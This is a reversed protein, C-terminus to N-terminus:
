RGETRVIHIAPNFQCVPPTEAEIATMMTEASELLIKTLQAEIYGEWMPLKQSAWRAFEPNHLASDKAIAAAITAAYHRILEDSLM